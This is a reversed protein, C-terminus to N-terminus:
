AGVRRQPSGLVRRMVPFVLARPATEMLFCTVKYLLGPIINRRGRFLANLAARVTHDASIASLRTLSPLEHEAVRHFETTMFGPCVSTLRVGSGRLEYAVAETFNRVYTKGASYTAYTPAPSYAGMSSVNLVYGVGRARMAQAFRWTLETLTVVNVQLEQATLEWPLALFEGFNGFGANNILVDVRQGEGETQRFLEAASEPRALDVTVVRTAVGHRAGLESALQELRDTRRAALVLNAGRAALHRAFVAGLGSSAGTVLATKGSLNVPAVNFM